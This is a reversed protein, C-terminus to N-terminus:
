LRERKSSVGCDLEDDAKRKSLRNGDRDEVADQDGDRDGDPDCTDSGNSIEPGQEDDEADVYESMDDAAVIFNQVNEPVLGDEVLESSDKEDEDEEAAEEADQSPLISSLLEPGSSFSSFSSGSALKTAASPIVQIRQGNYGHLILLPQPLPHHHTPLPHHHTPLPPHHNPAATPSPAIHRLYETRLEDLQRHLLAEHETKMKQLLQSVHEDLKVELHGVLEAVRRKLAVIEAAQNQVQSFM